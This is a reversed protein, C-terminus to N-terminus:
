LFYQNTSTMRGAQLTKSTTPHPLAILRSESVSAVTNSTKTAKPRKHPEPASIALLTKRVQKQRPRKLDDKRTQAQLETLIDSVLSISRVLNGRPCPQAQVSILQRNTMEKETNDKHGFDPSCWAITPFSETIAHDEGRLTSKTTSFHWRRVAKMRDEHSSFLVDNLARTAPRPPSLYRSTSYASSLSTVTPCSQDLSVPSAQRSMLICM